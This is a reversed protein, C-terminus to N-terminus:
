FSFDVGIIFFNLIEEWHKSNDWLGEMARDITFRLLLVCIIFIASILGFKGIDNAISDLKKQLPTMEPEQERLLSEIKGVCSDDGVVIIIFYGEGAMIKTGSLLIPSPLTHANSTNKSGEEIVINRKRICKELSDKKVPDTEGTMASEDTLVDSAEIIFGDAPIDMGEQIQVLDGVVLDSFHISKIHGKRIVTIQRRSDAVSNLKKFQLEKEYDNVAAVLSCVLVAVFIAFGDIWAINREEDDHATSVQIIISVFSAVILIKLTLDQLANWLLGFFASYIM